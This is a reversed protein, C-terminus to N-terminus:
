VGVRCFKGYVLFFKVFLIWFSVYRLYEVSVWIGGRVGFVIWAFFLSDVALSGLAFSFGFCLRCKFDFDIGLVRGNYTFYVISGLM